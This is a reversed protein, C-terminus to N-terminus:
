SNPLFQMVEYGKSIVAQFEPSIAHWDLVDVMIPLESEEFAEKLSYFVDRELKESGVVVLDLDSWKKATQKIRSGFARVECAPVFEALIKKVIDLQESPLDIMVSLFEHLCM